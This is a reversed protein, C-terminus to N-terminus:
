PSKKAATDRHTTDPHASDTPTAMAAGTAPTSGGSAPM